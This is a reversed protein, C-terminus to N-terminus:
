GILIGDRKLIDRLLITDINIGNSSFCGRRPKGICFVTHLWGLEIPM